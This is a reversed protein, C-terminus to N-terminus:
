LVERSPRSLVVIGIAAALGVMYGVVTMRLGFRSWGLGFVASGLIRSLALSTMLIALGSTRLSEPLLASGLAMLIGETAAYYLGLLVLTLVVLPWGGELGVLGAYMALLLAHGAIFVPFRGTRDAIRGVPIAFLLYAASTMVYLLPFAGAPIHAQRQLSLYIFGDSITLGGLLLAAIALHRFAPKELLSLAAAVTVRDPGSAERDRRRNEVFFALVAVGLISLCLSTVFVVDFGNRISGLIAFAVVPGLM